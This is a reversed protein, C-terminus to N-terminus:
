QPKVVGLRTMFTEANTTWSCVENNTIKPRLCRGYGHIADHDRDPYAHLESASANANKLALYYYLSNEVKIGDDETQALFAPPHESTVNLMVQSVDSRCCCPLLVLVLLVLLLLLLLLPVVVVVVVVVVVLLVLV